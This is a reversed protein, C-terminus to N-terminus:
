TNLQERLWTFMNMKDTSPGFGSWDEVGKVEIVLKNGQPSTKQLSDRIVSCTIESTDTTVLWFGEIWHWWGCRKSSLFDRFTETQEKTLDQVAVIFIKKM